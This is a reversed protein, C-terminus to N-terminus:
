AHASQLLRDWEDDVHQLEIGNDACWKIIFEVHKVLDESRIDKSSVLDNTKNYRPYRDDLYKLLERFKKFTLVLKVDAKTLVQKYADNTLAFYFCQFDKSIIM